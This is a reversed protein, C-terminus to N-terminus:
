NTWVMKPLQFITILPRRELKAKLSNMPVIAVAVFPFSYSRLKARMIGNKIETTHNPIPLPTFLELVM